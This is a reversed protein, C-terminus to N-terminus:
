RREGFGTSEDFAAGWDAPLWGKGVYQHFSSYPWGAARAVHGHKVPNFHIYDLHRDLDDENRILHEWYRRQWIGREHKDVLSPRRYETKPLNRSFGTKILRWRLAYDTDGPPLEWIAHMHDPLVVTAVIKFPHAQQVHQFSARLLEIQEVLLRSGRDALNVTFFWTAGPSWVRRYDTM